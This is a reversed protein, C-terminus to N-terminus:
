LVVLRGTKSAVDSLLKVFRENEFVKKQQELNSALQEGFKELKKREDAAADSAPDAFNTPAQALIHRAKIRM